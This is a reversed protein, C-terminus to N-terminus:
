KMSLCILVIRGFTMVIVAWKLIPYLNKNLEQNHQAEDDEMYDESQQYNAKGFAMWIMMFVVKSIFTLNARYMLIRDFDSWANQHEQSPLERLIVAKINKLNSRLNRLFAIIM